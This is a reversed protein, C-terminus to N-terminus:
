QAGAKQSRQALSADSLEEWLFDEYDAGDPAPIDDREYNKEIELAAALSKMAVDDVKGFVERAYSRDYTKLVVILRDGVREEFFVEQQPM